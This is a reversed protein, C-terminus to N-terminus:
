RCHMWDRLSWKNRAEENRGYEERRLHGELRKFKVKVLTRGSVAKVLTTKREEKKSGEEM